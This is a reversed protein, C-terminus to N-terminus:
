KNQSDVINLHFYNNDLKVFKYTRSSRALNRFLVVFRKTCILKLIRFAFYFTIKLCKVWCLMNNRYTYVYQIIVHGLNIITFKKQINLIVKGPQHQNEFLNSKVSVGIVATVDNNSNSSFRNSKWTLTTWSWKIRM